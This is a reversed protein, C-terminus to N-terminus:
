PKTSRIQFRGSGYVGPWCDCMNYGAIKEANIIQIM